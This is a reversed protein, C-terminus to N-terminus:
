VKFILYLMSIVIGQRREQIYSLHDPRVKGKTVLFLGRLGSCCRALQLAAGGWIFNPSYFGLHRVCDIQPITSSDDNPFRAHYPRVVIEGDLVNQWHYVRFEERTRPELVDERGLAKLRLNIQHNKGWSSLTTFLAVIGEEFAENNADRVVNQENYTAKRKVTEYDDLQYPIVVTYDVDRIFTRRSAPGSTLSRFKDLSMTGKDLKFDESRVCVKSYLLPEFVAQWRRCVLVYRTFSLPDSELHKSILLLLELPLKHSMISSFEPTASTSNDFNHQEQFPQGGLV